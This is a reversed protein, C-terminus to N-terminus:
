QYTGKFQGNTITKIVNSANLATGSFTGQITKTSTNHSTVKFVISVNTTTNDASYMESTNSSNFVFGCSNGTTSTSNYTENTNMGGSIDVLGFVLADTSNSGSYTLASIPGIAQLQSSTMTGQYTNAGETFKWDVVAAATITLPFSCSSTGNNVSINVDGSATPIGSATLTITQSGTTTFNGSGSFTIGNVATTTLNWSGIATVNVNLVVKNSSTMSTGNEYTGSLVASSCDISYASSGGTPATVTVSFQCVTGNYTVTFINTGSALPKGSGTLKVTQVGASNFTGTAKFSYGNVVDTSINFSGTSDVKVSVNVYNSADLVIDKKYTGSVASSLCNGAGDKQLSGVSSKSLIEGSIEKQCSFSIVSLIALLISLKLITKVLHNKTM